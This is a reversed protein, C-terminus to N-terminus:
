SKGFHVRDMEIKMKVIDIVFGYTTSEVFTDNVVFSIREDFQTNVNELVYRGKVDFTDWVDQLVEGTLGVHSYLSSEASDSGSKMMCMMRLITQTHKEIFDYSYHRSIAVIGGNCATLKTFTTTRTMVNNYTFIPSTLDSRHILGVRNMGYLAYIDRELERGIDGIDRYFYPISSSDEGGPAISCGSIRDIFKGIFKRRRYSISDYREINSIILKIEQMGNILAGADYTSLIHRHPTDKSHSIFTVYGLLGCMPDRICVNLADGNEAVLTVFNMPSDSDERRISKVGLVYTDMCDTLYTLSCVMGRSLYVGDIRHEFLSKIVEGCEKDQPDIFPRGTLVISGGIHSGTIICGDEPISLESTDQSEM